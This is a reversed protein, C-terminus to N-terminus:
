IQLSQVFGFVALNTRGSAVVQYNEDSAGDIQECRQILRASDEVLGILESFPIDQIIKQLTKYLQGKVRDTLIDVDCRDRIADAVSLWHRVKKSDLYENEAMARELFGRECTSMETPTIISLNKVNDIKVNICVCTKTFFYFVLQRKSVLHNEAVM